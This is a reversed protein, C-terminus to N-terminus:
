FWDEPILNIMEEYNCSFSINLLVREENDFNYYGHCLKNNLTVPTRLNYYDYKEPEYLFRLAGSGHIVEDDKAERLTASQDPKISFFCSKELNVKIPVNIGCSLSNDTHVPGLGCNPPNVLFKCKFDSFYNKLILYIPSDPRPIGIEMHEDIKFYNQKDIPIFNGWDENAVQIIESPFNHLIKFTTVTKM